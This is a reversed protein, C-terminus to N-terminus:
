KVRVNEAATPVVGPAQRRARQAQDVAVIIELNVVYNDGPYGQGSVRDPKCKRRM